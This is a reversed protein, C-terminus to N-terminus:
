AFAVLLAIPVVWFVALIAIVVARSMPRVRTLRKGEPAVENVSMRGSIQRGDPGLVFSAVPNMRSDAYLDTRGRTKQAVVDLIRFIRGLVKPDALEFEKASYFFMWDDVIEVDLTSSEDILLAMLDPTFIYLADREYGEPCYLTFHDDFDGELSLTQGETLRVPLTRRTDNATADLLMHPLMRNLRTAVYGWTHTVTGRGAGTTFRFNGIDPSHTEARFLHEQVTRDDGVIFIAGPFGPNPAGTGFELGNAAAFRELRLWREWPSKAFLVRYAFVSILALTGALALTLFVLFTVAVPEGGSLNVGAFKAAERLLVFCTYVAIAVWVTLIVVLWLQPRHTFGAAEAERRRRDIHEADVSSRLPEYNLSTTM